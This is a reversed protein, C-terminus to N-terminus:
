KVQSASEMIDAAPLLVASGTVNSDGSNKSSLRNIGIGIFKGQDNFVPMGTAQATIKGFVRPKKVVSIMEGTIVMPERNLEKNMRGIVIIDDLLQLAATNKTDIPIFQDSPKSPKLFILDLDADKLVVKADIESGDPMIIKVEKIESKAAIKVPGSPTNVTRGDMANALDLTSLPAVLLGEKTLVTSIIEVKKEEKQTPNSGATLEINVVASIFLTSDKHAQSLAIAKEKLAGTAACVPLCLCTLTMIFPTYKM